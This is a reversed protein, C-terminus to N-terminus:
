GFFWLFEWLYVWVKVVKPFLVLIEDFLWTIVFFYLLIFPLIFKRFILFITKSLFIFVWNLISIQITLFNLKWFLYLFDVGNLFLFSLSYFSLEDCSLFIIRLSLLQCCKWFCLNEVFVQKIKGNKDFYESKKFFYRSSKNWQNRYLSTNISFLNIIFKSNEFTDIM